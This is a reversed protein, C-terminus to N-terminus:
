WGPLSQGDGYLRALLIQLSQQRGATTRRLIGKQQMLGILKHPATHYDGVIEVHGASLEINEVRASKDIQTIYQEEVSFVFDDKMCTGEADFSRCSESEDTVVKLHGTVQSMLRGPKQIFPSPKTIEYWKDGSILKCFPVVLGFSWFRASLLACHDAAAIGAFPSSITVLQVQAATNEFRNTEQQQVLARRAILGGQSHGILTLRHNDMSQSLEQLSDMLESSSKDLSDRDNYSFCVAQQGHFAFVQALARFRGASGKCGHVLVVVPEDTNLRIETEPSTTCPSLGPIALRLNPRPLNTSDITRLEPDAPVSSQMCGTQLLLIVIGIFAAFSTRM